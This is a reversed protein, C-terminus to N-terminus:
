RLFARLEAALADPALLAAEHGVGPIEAVRAAPMTEALADVAHRHHPQTTEGVILLTPTAVDAYRAVGPPLGRIALLERGWRSGNRVMHPWTPSSQLARVVERPMRVCRELGIELVRSTDGAGSSEEFIAAVDDPVVASDINLPPEYLALRDLAANQAAGLAVIAGFSHGVLRSSGTSELVAVVDEHESTIDYDTHDHSAGTGRRSMVHITFGDALAEAVRDWDSGDTLSGPVIVVGPGSGQSAVALKVGDSSEVFMTPDVALPYAVAAQAARSVCGNLRDGDFGRVIRGSPLRTEFTGWDM